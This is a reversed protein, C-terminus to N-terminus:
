LIRSSNLRIDAQKWSLKIDKEIMRLAKIDKKGMLAAKLGHQAWGNKPLRKLDELYVQIADDYKQHESLIAGLHHRVSFFWDPPENYNLGDEILVAERLLQISSDFDKQKALLEANLVKQAISVIDSMANIGWITMGALSSDRANSALLQLEKNAESLNDKGLYAMGRAYHRIADVYPLGAMPENRHLISDWLGFKVEIYYPIMYYHQLTSWKPDKMLTTRVHARVKEAGMLAWASNGELTATAALFHFNHPFYALPYMGQAHCTAVYQSDINVAHLNALSGEHYNGTRIYIHSPMHVLHGANPVLGRDFRRASELAREPKFSAEVAHIYFHHFGPHDPYKKILGEITNIIAPTWPRPNGKKDWLDWPHLDMISEVYLAAIEPDDPYRANLKMMESSYISDLVRRDDTPDKIYRTSLAHILGKEKETNNVSYRIAKQIAQYARIYNDPEMGANYNPGLVYAYGWYCMACTTDLQIASYFSRAAEAHNFAYSLILGQDFYRQITDKQTTISYHLNGLGELIPAQHQESYWAADSTFSGCVTASPLVTTRVSQKKDSTCQIALLLLVPLLNKM